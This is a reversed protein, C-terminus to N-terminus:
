GSITFINVLCAVFIITPIIKFFFIFGNEPGLFSGLKKDDALIGFVFKAGEDSFSLVKTVAKGLWEFIAKGVPTKLIFVALLAQVLLGMGVTRYNIAKRNNSLLYAIGLILVIGFVGILRDMNFLFIFFTLL